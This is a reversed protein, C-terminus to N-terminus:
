HILKLRQSELGNHEQPIFQFRETDTRIYALVDQPLERKRPGQLEIEAEGLAKTTREVLKLGDQLLKLMPYEQQGYSIIFWNELDCGSAIRNALLQSPVPGVGAHKANCLLVLQTWVPNTTCDVSAKVAKPCDSEFSAINKEQLWKRPNMPFNESRAELVTSHTDKTLRYAAICRMWCQDLLHRLKIV